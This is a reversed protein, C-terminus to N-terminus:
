KDEAGGATVENEIIKTYNSDGLWSEHLLVVVLSSGKLLQKAEKDKPTTIGIEAAGGQYRGSILKLNNAFQQVWEKDPGSKLDDPRLLIIQRGPKM